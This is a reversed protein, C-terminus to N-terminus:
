TDRSMAYRPVGGGRHATHMNTKRLRQQVQQSTCSGAPVSTNDVDTWHRGPPWCSSSRHRCLFFGLRLSTCFRVAIDFSSARRLGLASVTDTRVAYMLTAERKCEKSLVQM